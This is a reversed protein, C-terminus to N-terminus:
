RKEDSSESFGYDELYMYCPGLYTVKQYSREAISHHYDARSSSM